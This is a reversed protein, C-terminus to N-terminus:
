FPSVVDMLLAKSVQTYHETTRINNHGLLKQLIRIDVGDEILHTAFSHRLSHFTAQKQIMSAHLARTFVKQLSRTSLKGGRESEFVFDAADKKWLVRQIDDSLKESFITVRDKDGKGHRVYLIRQQIDVDQVKLNVVESVRLGASYSLSLMLRHKVNSVSTFIRQLEERTLVVPIRKARKAFRVQIRTGDRLVKHYFFKIANLYLNVSQPAKGLDQQHLLFDEIVKQDGLAKFGGWELYRRLCALYSKQTRLSYNRLRLVKSTREICEPISNM